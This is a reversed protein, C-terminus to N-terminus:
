FNSIKNNFSKWIKFFFKKYIDSTVWRQIIEIFTFFLFKQVIFKTQSM